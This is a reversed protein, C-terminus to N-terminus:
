VDIEILFLRLVSSVDGWWLGYGKAVHVSVFTVWFIVNNACLISHLGLMTNCVYVVVSSMMLLWEQVLVFITISVIDNLTLCVVYGLVGLGVMQFM